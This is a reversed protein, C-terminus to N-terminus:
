AAGRNSFLLQRRGPAMATMQETNASRRRIGFIGKGSKAMQIAKAIDETGIRTRDEFGPLKNQFMGGGTPDNPNIGSEMPTVAGGMGEFPQSQMQWFLGQLEKASRDDLDPKLEKFDDFLLNAENWDFAGQGSSRQKGSGIKFKDRFNRLDKRLRRLSM